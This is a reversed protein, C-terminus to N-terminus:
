REAPRTCDAASRRMTSRSSSMMAKTGCSYQGTPTSSSPLFLGDNLADSMSDPPLFTTVGERSRTTFGVSFTTEAFSSASAMVASRRAAAKVTEVTSFFSRRRRAGGGYM